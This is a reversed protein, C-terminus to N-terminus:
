STGVDSCRPRRRRVGAMANPQRHHNRDPPSWGDIEWTGSFSEGDEAFAFVAEFEGIDPLDASLHMTQGSVSGIGEFSVDSGSIAFAVTTGTQDIEMTYLPEPGITVYYIGSFNKLSEGLQAGGAFGVSQAGLVVILSVAIAWVRTNM